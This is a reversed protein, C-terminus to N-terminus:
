NSIWVPAVGLFFHLGFDDGIATTFLDETQTTVSHSNRARYVVHSFTLARVRSDADETIFRATAYFPLEIAVAQSMNDVSFQSGSWFEDISDEVLTTTYTTDAPAHKRNITTAFMYPFWIKNDTEFSLYRGLPIARVRMSGRWGSYNSSVYRIMSGQSHNWPSVSFENVLALTSGASNFSDAFTKKFFNYRKLCTRFSTVEEVGLLCPLHDVEHGGVRRISIYSEAADKNSTIADSELGKGLIGSQPSM